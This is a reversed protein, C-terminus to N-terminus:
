SRNQKKIKLKQVIQRGIELMVITTIMIILYPIGVTENDIKTAYTIAYSNLAGLSLYLTYRINRSTQWFLTPFLWVVYWPNFNTILIFTFVLLFGQYTQMINRFSVNSAQKGFFLKLLIALYSITFIALAVMKIFSLAQEDGNLLYYIGLFISRGYKNQQM